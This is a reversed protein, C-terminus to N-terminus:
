DEAVRELTLSARRIDSPFRSWADLRTPVMLLIGASSGDEVRMRWSDWGEYWQIFAVMDLDRAWADEDPNDISEIRLTTGAELTYRDAVVAPDLQAFLAFQDHEPIVISARRTLRWRSGVEGDTRRGQSDLRVAPPTWTPDDAVVAPPKWTPDTVGAGRLAMAHLDRGVPGAREQGPVMVRALVACILGAVVAVGVGGIWIWAEVRAASM